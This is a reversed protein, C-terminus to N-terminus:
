GPVWVRITWALSRPPRPVAPRPWRPTPPQASGCGWSPRPSPWCCRWRPSPPSGATGCSRPASGGGCGARRTRPAATRGPWNRDRGGAAPRSAPDARRHRQGGPHAPRHLRRQAPVAGAARDARGPQGRRHRRLVAGVARRHGAGAGGGPRQRRRPRTGRALPHRDAARLRDRRRARDPRAPVARHVVRRDTRDPGVRDPVHDPDVGVAIVLPMLALFSGFVLVLVVLAGVGGFLTEALVGSGGGGGGNQLADQGTVAVPVGSRRLISAAHQLAPLAAAYADAGPVPHPYVMVVGTRGDAALLSRQAAYSVVRAGPAAKDVAQVVPIASAAPVQQRGNGVVLLIPANDGGSGFQRMIQQNAEYGAQGPLGFDYTLASIAKPAAYGGAVALLLWAALVWWRHAIVFRALSIM